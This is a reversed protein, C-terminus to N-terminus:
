EANLVKIHVRLVRSSCKWLFVQWICRRRSLCFIASFLSLCLRVVLILLQPFGNACQCRCLLSLSLSLHAHLRNRNFNLVREWEREWDCAHLTSERLEIIKPGPFNRWFRGCFIMTHTHTSRVGTLQLIWLMALWDHKNLKKRMKHHCHHTHARVSEVCLLNIESVFLWPFHNLAFFYDMPHIQSACECSDLAISVNNITKVPKQARGVPLRVNARVCVTSYMSVCIYFKCVFVYVVSFFFLYCLLDFCTCMFLFIAQNNAFDSFVVICSVIM